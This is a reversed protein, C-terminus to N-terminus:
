TSLVDSGRVVGEDNAHYLATAAANIETFYAEIHGYGSAQPILLGYTVTYEYDPQSERYLIFKMTAPNLALFYPPSPTTLIANLGTVASTSLAM